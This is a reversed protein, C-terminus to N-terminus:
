RRSFRSEQQDVAQKKGILDDTFIYGQLGAEALVPYHSAQSQKRRRVKKNVKKVVVEVTM